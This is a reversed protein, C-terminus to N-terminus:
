FSIHERSWIREKDDKSLTNTRQDLWQFYDWVNVLSHMDGDPHPVKIRQERTTFSPGREM